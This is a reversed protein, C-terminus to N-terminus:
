AFSCMNITILTDTVKTDTAATLEFSKVYDYTKASDAANKDDNVNQAWIVVKYSATEVPTWHAYLTLSEGEALSDLNGTFGYESGGEAATYWGDFTYGPRTPDEPEFAATTEGGPVFAPPTYSANGVGTGGDNENFYLWHGAGIKPELTTNASLAYTSGNKYVPTETGKVVWGLFGQNAETVTYPADVTVDLSTQSDALFFVDTKFVSGDQATYYLYFVKHLMPYLTLTDGENVGSNVTTVALDRVEAITMGKEATDNQTVSWGVFLKGDAVPVGPDHIIEEVHDPIDSKKLYYTPNDSGNMFQIKLRAQDPNPNDEIIAYVSFDSSKFSVSLPSAVISATDVSEAKGEDDLHVVTLNELDELGAKDMIVEVAKEPEIEKGSVRFSIDVAAIVQGPYQSTIKALTAEDYVPTVIMESGAPLAGAPAYVSVDMGDVDKQEFYQAPKEPEPDVPIPDEPDDVPTPDEPDDVPTPDEPTPTPTPETPATLANVLRQFIIALQARTTTGKPGFTGDEFGTILGWSAVKSVPEKAYDAITAEDSFSKGEGATLGLSLKEVSRALITCADQRSISANPDFKGEGVGSVIGNEAAWAVPGTFWTGDPVDSFDSKTADAKAEVVRSLVTVFMARTVDADPAFTTDSVGVMYGKDSVFGVASEYWAGANVDSFKSEASVPLVILSLVMVVALFLSIVRKKM